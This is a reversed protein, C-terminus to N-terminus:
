EQPFLVFATRITKRDGSLAPPMPPLKADRLAARVSEDMEYVGSSAGLEYTLIRGDRLMVFTIPVELPQRIGALYPRRWARRLSAVLQVKYWNFQDGIGEVGAVGSEGGLSEAAAGPQDYASPADAPDEAPEDPQEQRPPPPPPDEQEPEEEEDDDPSEDPVVDVPKDDKVPEPEPPPVVVPEPKEPEPEPKPTVPAAAPPAVTPTVAESGPIAGVLQVSMSPELVLDSKFAHAILLGGVVLGVHLLGSVAVYPPLTGVRIVVRM